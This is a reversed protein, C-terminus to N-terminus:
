PAFNYRLISAMGGKGENSIFMDGNPAFCIGEPQRFNKAPLPRVAEISGNKNLVILVKGVSAIVYVLGSVPHIAIASPRFNDKNGALRKVEKVPIQFAPEPLLTNTTLDFAYIARNDPDDAQIGSIGKCALLLRQNAADYALGEVDNRGSLPTDFVETTSAGSLSTKALQGDSRLVYVTDGVLAIDEYDGSKGFKVRDTISKNEINYMYVTGKEDQVAALVNETLYAIGSIEELEPEMRFSDDPKDLRYPFVQTDERDDTVQETTHGSCAALFYILPIFMFAKIWFTKM